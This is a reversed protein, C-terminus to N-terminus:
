DKLYDHLWEFVSQITAEFFLDINNSIKEESQTGKPNKKRFVNIKDKSPFLAIHQWFPIKKWM